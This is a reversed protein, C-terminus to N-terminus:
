FNRTTKLPQLFVILNSQETPKVANDSLTNLYGV